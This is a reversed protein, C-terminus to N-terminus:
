QPPSQSRSLSKLTRGYIVPATALKRSTPASLGPDLGELTAWVEGLTRERIAWRWGWDTSATGRLRVIGAM